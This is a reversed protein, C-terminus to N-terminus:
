EAAGRELMVDGIYGFIKAQSGDQNYRDGVSMYIGTLRIEGDVFYNDINDSNVEVTIKVWKKNPIVYTAGAYLTNKDELLKVDKGNEAEAYVWCSIRNYGEVILEKCQEVTIRPSVTLCFVSIPMSFRVAKGTYDGKIQSLVDESVWEAQYQTGYGGISFYDLSSFDYIKCLENELVENIVPNRVLNPVYGIILDDLYIKPSELNKYLYNDFRCYIGTVTNLKAGDWIEYVVDNWGTKLIYSSFYSSLLTRDSNLTLGIEVSVDYEEANYFSLKVNSVNNFDMYNYSFKNSLTSMSFYPKENTKKLGQPEIKLSAKGSKVYQEEINQSLRGFGTSIHILEFDPAYQEFDYLTFEGSPKKPYKEPDAAESSGCGIAFLTANLAVIFAIFFLIKKM